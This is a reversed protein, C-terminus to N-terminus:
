RSGQYVVCAHVSATLRLLMGQHSSITATQGTYVAAAANLREARASTRALYQLLQCAATCYVLLGIYTLRHQIAAVATRSACSATLRECYRPAAPPDNERKSTFSRCLLLISCLPPLQRFHRTHQKRAVSRFHLECLFYFFTVTSVTFDQARLEHV